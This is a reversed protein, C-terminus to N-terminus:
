SQWSRSSKRNKSAQSYGHLLQPGLFVATSVEECIFVLPVGAVSAACWQILTKIEKNGGFARCGWLGTVVETYVAVASETGVLNLASNFAAYAKTLERDVNGPLLDPVPLGPGTEYSDLELADMFLMTRRTWDWADKELVTRLRADRGYGEMEIMSEAGRVIMVEGDVLPQTILVAPCAEPTSGVHMEEQSGTRGFGIYKNASIVCAGSPLGLLSPVMGPTSLEHVTLKTFCLPSEILRFTSSRLMFSISRSLTPPEEVIRDFYTFLAYLYAHVATPHPQEDGFWIHFDPSGDDEM